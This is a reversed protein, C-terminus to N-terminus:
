SSYPPQLQLQLCSRHPARKQLSWRQRLSQKQPCFLPILLLPLSVHPLSCQCGNGSAGIGSKICSMKSTRMMCTRRWLMISMPNNSSSQISRQQCWRGVMSCNTQCQQINRGLSLGSIDSWRWGHRAGGKIQVMPSRCCNIEVLSERRSNAFVVVCYNVTCDGSVKYADRFLPSHTHSSYSSSNQLFHKPNNKTLFHIYTFYEISWVSLISSMRMQSAM